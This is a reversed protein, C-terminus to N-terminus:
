APLRGTHAAANDEVWDSYLTEGDLVVYYRLKFNQSYSAAPIDSIIARFYCNDGDVYVFRTEYKTTDELEVGVATVNTSKGTGDFAIGIDSMKFTGKFGLNVANKEENAWQIQTAAHAVKFSPASPASYATSFDIADAAYLSPTTSGEIKAQIKFNTTGYAGDPAGIVDDATLTRQAIFSITFFECEPDIPFGTNVSYGNANNMTVTVQCAKDWNYPNTSKNNQNNIITASPAITVNATTKMIDVYSAGWVRCDSVTNTTSTTKLAYAASNWAVAIPGNQLLVEGSGEPVTYYVKVNVVTGAPAGVAADSEFYLGVSKGEATAVANASVACVSFLMIVALALSLIKKSM